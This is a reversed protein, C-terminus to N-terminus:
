YLTEVHKKILRSFESLPGTVGGANSHLGFRGEGDFNYHSYCVYLEEGEQIYSYPEGSLFSYDKADYWSAMRFSDSDHVWNYISEVADKTMFSYYESCDVLLLTYKRNTEPIASLDCIMELLVNQEFGLDDLPSGDKFSLIACDQRNLYAVNDLPQRSCSPLVTAVLSLLVLCSKYNM